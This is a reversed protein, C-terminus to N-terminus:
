PKEGSTPSKLHLNSLPALDITLARFEGATGCRLILRQPGPTIQFFLSGRITEDPAVNTPLVLRRRTFEAEVKHRGRVNRYIAVGVAVPVVAQMTGMAVAPALMGAGSTSAGAIIGAAGIIAAGGGVQTSIDKALGFNRQAASRSAKELSWPHAGPAHDAGTLGVLTASEIALPTSGRNTISVTYEDWYARKKWSGSGQFVIVGNVTAEATSQLTALNLPEPLIEKRVLQYKTSVCGSVTILGIAFLVIRLANACTARSVKSCRDNLTKM